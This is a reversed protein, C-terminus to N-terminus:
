VKLLPREALSKIRYINIGLFLVNWIAAEWLGWLLYYPILLGMGVITLWRLLRIDKVCYSTLYFINAIHILGHQLM